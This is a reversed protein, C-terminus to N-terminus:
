LLYVLFLNSQSDPSNICHDRLNQNPVHVILLLRPALHNCYFLKDNKKEPLDGSLNFVLCRVFQNM